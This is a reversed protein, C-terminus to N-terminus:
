FMKGKRTTLDYDKLAPFHPCYDTVAYGCMLFILFLIHLCDKISRKMITDLCFKTQSTIFIQTITSKCILKNNVLIPLADYRIIVYVM